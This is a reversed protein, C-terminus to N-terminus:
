VCPIFITCYASLFKRDTESVSVFMINVCVTNQYKEFIQIM